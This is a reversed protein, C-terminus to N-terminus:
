IEKELTEIERQLEAARRAKKAEEDARLNAESKEKELTEIESLLKAEKEPM